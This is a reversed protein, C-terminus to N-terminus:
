KAAAERRALEVAWISLPRMYMSARYDGNEDWAEPTRFWYGRQYVVNYVGKATTYAREPMGEAMYFSALGLTVGTWVEHIQENDRLLQGDPSMGNMAGMQGHAFDMVNVRFITDLATKVDAEPVLPGLGTLDAYWQGALQDAMVNDRYPSGTDYAFYKGNWLDKVYNPEAKQFWAAYKQSAAQDGLIAGMKQGARLAALWLGGCYASVGRMSWVDYTQDPVGDNEPIGQGNREFRTLYDLALKVSPWNYALFARDKRGTLDYDRWVMLVYKTNLDKWINVDQWNYNNFDVMPDETPAGLDHPLAGRLKRPALKGSWGIRRITTLNQRASDAYADMVSKDLEPWWQLLGMSGYFRVDLTSYFPYDFCEMYTFKHRRVPDSAAGPHGFRGNEWFTGGDTLYYLENFLMGRYWAPSTSGPVERDAIFPAQWRDIARSWAADNELGVRAVALANEGSTGFFATYRRYWRTGNGFQMLPLDWALVMPLVRTEGPALEVTVALAGALPEGSSTWNPGADDLAGTQSFSKWIVAGDGAAEYTAHTTITVGPLALAAIAFQGDWDQSVVGHRHRDFLVGVMRGDRTPASFARNFDDTSNGGVRHSFDRFWGVMNTWSFLLGVKVPKTGPNRLTWNYLAVPYSTERYNNPLIPSFQEVTAEIPLQPNRYAFWSKPYLAHYEGGGVPYGWNWSKLAKPRSTSLAQAYRAGDATQTFIAFQNSAVDGYKHAGVKLHYRVFDGNYARGISGAGFGGVPAGNLWGDDILGENKKAHGPNEPAVGIARSWGIAPIAAPADQAAASAPALVPALIAVLGVLAFGLAVAAAPRPRSAPAPSPFRM